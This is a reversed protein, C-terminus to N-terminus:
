GQLPPDPHFRQGFRGPIRHAVPVGHNVRGAHFGAPEGPDVVHVVPADRSLEPPPMPDRDPVSGVAFLHADARVFCGRLAPFLIRVHQIGPKRRRQPRKGRQTPRVLRRLQFLEIRCANQNGAIVDQEKPHGSHHHEAGEDAVVGGDGEVAAPARLHREGVHKQMPQDAVLRAALHALGLAVDDVRQIPHFHEPGIRQPERQGAPGTGTTVQRHALIGHPRRAIEPGLQEVGSPVCQEIAGRWCGQWRRVLQGVGVAPNESPQFLNPGFNIRGEVSVLEAASTLGQIVEGPVFEAVPVEFQGFRLKGLSECVGGGHQGGPQVRQQAQQM